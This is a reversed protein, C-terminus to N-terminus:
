CRGDHAPGLPWNAHVVDYFRATIVGRAHADPGVPTGAPFVVQMKGVAAAAHVGALPVVVADHVRVVLPNHKNVTDDM